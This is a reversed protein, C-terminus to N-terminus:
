QLERDPRGTLRIELLDLMQGRVKRDGNMWRSVTIHHIRDGLLRHKNLLAAVDKATVEHAEMLWRLRCRNIDPVTIGGESLKVQLTRELAETTATTSVGWPELLRLLIHRPIDQLRQRKNNM